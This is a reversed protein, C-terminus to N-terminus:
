IHQQQINIDRGYVASNTHIWLNKETPTENEPQM